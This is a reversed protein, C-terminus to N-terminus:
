LMDRGFMEGAGRRIVHHEPNVCAHRIGQNSACTGHVNENKTLPRGLREEFFTRSMANHAIGCLRHRGGPIRIIPIERGSDGYQPIRRDVDLVSHCPRDSISARPGRRLVGETQTVSSQACAGLSWRYGPGAPLDRVLRDADRAQVSRGNM